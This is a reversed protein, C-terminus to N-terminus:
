LFSSSSSYSTPRAGLRTIKQAEPTEPDKLM